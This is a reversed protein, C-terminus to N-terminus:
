KLHNHMYQTCLFGASTCPLFHIAFIGGLFVQPQMCNQQYQSYISHQNFFVKWEMVMMEPVEELNLSSNNVTYVLMWTFKKLPNMQIEM